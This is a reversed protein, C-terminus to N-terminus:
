SSSPYEISQLRSLIPAVEWDVNQFVNEQIFHQFKLKFKVSIM